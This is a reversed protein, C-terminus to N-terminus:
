EPWLEGQKREMQVRNLKKVAQDKLINKHFYDWYKPSVQKGDKTRLVRIAELFAAKPNEYNKICITALIKNTNWGALVKSACWEELTMLDERQEQILERLEVQYIEQDTPFHYGCYPCDQVVIPVLRGCGGKELPCEKTMMVGPKTKNQWLSMPPDAREYIGHREVNGGFDLVNFHKKGPYPRSGRGVCQGYKTYSETAFDLVVTELSPEDYGTDLISINVLVEFERDRFQQLIVDRDGSYLADTEPFVESLLYKSKVGMENFAICLEIAHEAGTAFVITKTGPCIRMWNSIVGTYREKKRFRDQLQKQNYDGTYPTILIDDLKPAPYTYNKSRVLYGMEVLEPTTIGRVICDYFEGLQRIGNGYRCISATLGVVPTSPDLLMMVEDHEGRHPEDVIIMKFHRVWDVWVQYPKNPNKDSPRCRAAITQTMGVALSTDALRKTRANIIQPNLGLADMKGFNQKLIEERHTLVLTPNNKSAAGTALMAAVVSKGSGQPMYGCVRRFGPAFQEIGAETTYPRPRMATKVGEVFESQYLRPKLSM